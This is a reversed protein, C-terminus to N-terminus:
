LLSAMVDMACPANTYHVAHMVPAGIQVKKEHQFRQKVFAADGRSRVPETERLGGHAVCQRAQPLAEPVREEDLSPGSHPWGGGGLPDAKNGPFNKGH